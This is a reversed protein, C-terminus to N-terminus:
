DGGMAIIMWKALFTTCELWSRNQVTYISTDLAHLQESLCGHFYGFIHGFFLEYDCVGRASGSPKKGARGGAKALATLYVKSRSLDSRNFRAPKLLADMLEQM